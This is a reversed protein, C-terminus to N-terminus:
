KNLASTSKRNDKDKNECINVHDLHARLKPLSATAWAKIEADEANESAKEFKNIAKKHGKVMMDCYDENFDKEKKDTLKNYADQGDETLTTPIAIGKKTALAKLETLSKTHDAVMMKGIKKVEADTSKTQALQGLQIEELNIEAAEVLFQADKEDKRNDFANDNIEEAVDKPDDAKRNNDNFGNNDNVTAHDNDNAKQNNDCSSLLFTATAIVTLGLILKKFNNQRKM